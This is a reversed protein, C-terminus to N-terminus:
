SIIIIIIMIIIIIKIMAMIITIIIRIVNCFNLKSNCLFTITVFRKIGSGLKNRGLKFGLM